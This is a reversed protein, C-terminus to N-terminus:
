PRSGGIHAVVAELFSKRNRRSIELKTDAVVVYDDRMDTVYNLNVLYCQNCKAFAYAALEQEAGQLSGRVCCVGSKTHYYLMRSKTELYYIQGIEVRRIGDSTKLTIQAGTRPRVRQISRELKITFAYCNLPKLVFDLADVEYGRIAYQAFATVFVLVVDTDMKRLRRAAEMGDLGPIGIEMFVIDYVPQYQSLFKDARDFADLCVEIGENHAYRRIYGMMQDSANTDNDVIAIRLVSM